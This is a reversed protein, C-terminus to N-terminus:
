KGLQGQEQLLGTGGEQGLFTGVPVVVVLVVVVGQDVAGFFTGVGLASGGEGAVVGM